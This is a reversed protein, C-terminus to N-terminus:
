GGFLRKIWGFFGGGHGTAPEPAAAPAPRGAAPEPAPDGAPTPPSTPEVLGPPRDPGANPRAAQLMQEHHRRLVSDTPALPDAWHMQEHHRRLVSDTPAPSM